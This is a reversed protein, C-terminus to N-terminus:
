SCKATLWVILWRRKRSPSLDPELVPFTRGKLAQSLFGASNGPWVPFEVRPDARSGLQQNTSSNGCQLYSLPRGLDLNQNNYLGEGKKTEILNGNTLGQLNWLSGGGGPPVAQISFSVSPSVVSSASRTWGQSQKGWSSSKEHSVRPTTDHGGPPPPHTGVHAWDHGVRQFGISQLEGPQETWLIRWTLIRSHTAVEQELPDESGLSRVQTEQTQQMQCTFEKGNVVQSAQPGQTPLDKVKRVYDTMTEATSAIHKLRARTNYSKRLQTNDM